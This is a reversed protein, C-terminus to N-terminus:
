SLLNFILRLARIYHIFNVFTCRLAVNTAGTNNHQALPQLSSVIEALTFDFNFCIYRILLLETLARVKVFFHSCAVYVQESLQRNNMVSKIILVCKSVKACKDQMSQEKKM